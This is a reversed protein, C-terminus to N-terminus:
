PRIIDCHASFAILLPYIIRMSLLSVSSPADIRWNRTKQRKYARPDDPKRTVPSFAGWTSRKERDLERRKKKSLKGYPVFREM